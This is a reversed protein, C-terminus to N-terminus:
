TTFSWRYGGATKRDGLCCKSIHAQCIDLKKAADSASIFTNIYIGDKSYRDVPKGKYTTHGVWNNKGRAQEGINTGVVVGCQGLYWFSGKAYHSNSHCAHWIADEDVGTANQADRMSNYHALVLGHKDVAYVDQTIHEAFSSGGLTMNYGNPMYTNFKKIYWVELENLIHKLDCKSNASVIDVTRVSFNHEGYKKISRYLLLHSDYSRACRLHEAYRSEVSVSTQGVYKKNNISNTICYIYGTLESTSQM